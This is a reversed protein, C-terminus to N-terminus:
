RRRVRRAVKHYGSKTAVNGAVAYMNFTGKCSGKMFKRGKPMQYKANTM